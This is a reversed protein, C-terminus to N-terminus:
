LTTKGSGNAGVFAITEGRNIQISVHDLAPKGGDYSYSLDEAKFAIDSEAANNASESPTATKQPKSFFKHQRELAYLGHDTLMLTRAIGSVTTFIDMCLTFIVLLVAASMDGGAVAFLSYVVMAALFVYFGFGSIFSRLEVAVTNKVQYEYIPRYAEKWKKHLTEKSEFIRLEKAYEQSYPMSEYYGALREKDRIKEWNYRLKEVFALNLWVVGIIYALAIVFIFKSISFAVVLLSTTGIFKGFLSCFGSIVDTLSGERFAAAFFEDKVDKKLLEEMSITQVGNIM